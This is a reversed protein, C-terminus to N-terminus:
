RSERKVGFWQHYWRPMIQERLGKIQWHGQRIAIHIQGSQGTDYWRYGQQRYREVVAPAPMRWANYRALSALAAQGAVNRLLLSGSSTRSGHHPVQLFTAKLADHELAVIKREAELEIDGTLLLSIKGDDVHIVCSDNNQGQTQNAPPWLATFQLKGWQWKQGRHCPLHGEEGLASRVKITPNANLVSHLGGRHDLHKHSLILSHLKRGQYQLWPLLVRAGADDQKWAPGVDYLVVEKGQTIAIALGHGVDIMDIQWDDRQANNRWVIIAIVLSLCPMVSRDALGSRWLLMGVWLLVIAPLTDSWAWWGAPLSQLGSMVTTISLDALSWLGSSIVPAPLLMALLILPVTIFSVVPVAMLNAVLASLSLGQFLFIQLPAMLIMMGLQLHLLQLLLWRRQTRFRPPLAFWQYWVILMAVALASLWFSESLVTLPDLALLGGICLTWVQWGTLQWGAARIGIWLILAVIARQAPAHSGSVWTYTAATIVSVMLPFLYGILHAPLIVQIVRALLWGVSAALAIHMGSIAMLHATGTERLLQRQEETMNTRIGFALAQIIAPHQLTAFAPWHYNILATRWSCSLSESHQGIIRGQLPMHNSMAFRQIDFEGENLRGHVPRLKLKMKWRQGSCFSQILAANNLTVFVPPFQYRDGVRLIQATLQQKEERVETIRVTAEIPAAALLEITNVMHRAEVMAWSLLLLGVGMMRLLGHPTVGLLLAFGAIAVIVSTEPIQPLVGLPLASVIMMRALVIWSIRM